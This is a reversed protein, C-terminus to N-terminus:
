GVDHRRGRSNIQESLNLAPLEGSLLDRVVKQWLELRPLGHRAASREVLDYVNNQKSM